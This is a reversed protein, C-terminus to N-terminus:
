AYRGARFSFIPPKGASLMKRYIEDIRMLFTATDMRHFFPSLRVLPQISDFTGHQLSRSLDRKVVAPGSVFFLHWIHSTVPLKLRRGDNAELRNQQYHREDAGAPPNRYRQLIAGEVDSGDYRAGFFLAFFLALYRSPIAAHGLKRELSVSFAAV